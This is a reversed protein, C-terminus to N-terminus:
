LILEKKIFDLVIGRSLENHFYQNQYNRLCGYCSTDLGCTCNELKNKSNRIIEIINENEILRKIHGAGGPVNDFFILTYKKDSPYLCGDIDQRKVGLFGSIGELVAYLLSIWLNKDYHDVRDFRFDLSIVDTIFSHGLDLRLLKSHCEGGFPTKHKEFHIGPFAAGCTFCVSFGLGRFGKCIVALEGQSSYNCIIKSKGIEYKNELPRKYNHFHPKTIYQRKPRSEGVKKPEVDRLTTFGFEPTVFKKVEKRPIEGHDECEINISNDSIKGKELYFKNCEPCIAYHYIPWARDRVIKLGSSEWIFNNAIVKSGPAFEAIALRLDRELKIENSSKAHSLITLEVVDTPFSYNPIVINSALYNIISARKLTKLRREAWGMDRSIQNRIKGNSINEKLELAKDNLFNNLNNIENEIKDKAITLFGDKGIFKEIWEWNVISLKKYLESPITRSISDSIEKPKNRLFDSINQFGSEEENDFVFFDDVNGFYEPYNKFFNAIAISHIHRRIIKENLIEIKPPLIEGNIMKEPEKFYNIDHSRLQAFTLTFGATDTRRGARGSRQIYNSPEPPVNRLFITELEGLDVGLEFTTSCSLLNIDKNIFRQQIESAYGSKLQATHEHSFLKEINLNLYLDRYHNNKLVEYVEENLRELRGYCNFVPCINKLNNNTIYGCNDCIYLNEENSNIYINWFKHNIQFLIGEKRWDFKYIGENIWNESIDKWIIYLINKIDEIYNSSINIHKHLKNLFQSRTNTKGPYNIFSYICKKADSGEGRFRYERNRPKFFDDKPSPGEDPFTIANIFRLTNLLIEYLLNVENDKLNWPENKLEEPPKWNNPFIPKFRILGLGELSNRTDWMGCFEQIIWKWVEQKREKEDTDIDFISCDEGIRILDSALSNLRYDKINKNNRLAEIIIRRFLIRKYTFNLYPAFFAADQRSDSFALIKKRKTKQINQFLATALVSTPADKKFVFERVIGETSLGCNYCKNLTEGKPTVEKLLLTKHKGFQCEDQFMESSNWISGCKVCVKWDEQGMTENEPLAINQDDDEDVSYSEDVIAFYRNKIKNDIEYISHKLKNDQINGALYEQGCRRCTAMEFIPYKDENFLKRELHIKPKPMFSVFIGETARLFLHYRAPFLPLSDNKKKAWVAVNILNIIDEYSNGREQDFFSDAFKNFNMAGDKLINTMKEINKDKKLVDYLFGKPNNNNIKKIEVLENDPIDTKLFVEYLNELLTNSSSNSIINFLETYLKVPIRIGEKNIKVVQREGVILDQYNENNDDWFFKEGFLNSGFDIIDKQNKGKKVLTASTAICQLDGEVNSCVRDKLRRILMAIETGLAGNYIHAEDLVLYKWSNAFEGDFFPTDKPRLLLYELMAYNTILIHPPEERMEERSLIESNLIEQDPYYAKFKDIAREKKEETDGVYRGFKIKLDPINEEISKSIIRLRLLQDNALANMPYLLLANVGPRLNSQKYKKILHNYIPFLFCETKGSGTGSSIIINKGNIIKKIAKEQHLYLSRNKMEPFADFIFPKFGDDLVGENILENITCGKKFPPLSEIIPGNSYNVKRIENLFSKRLDPNKIKLSSILYRLYSDKINKTLELPNISM